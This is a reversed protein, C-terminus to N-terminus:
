GKKQADLSIYRVEMKAYPKPYIISMDTNIQLFFKICEGWTDGNSYSAKLTCVLVRPVMRSKAMEKVGM